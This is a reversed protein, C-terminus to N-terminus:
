DHALAEEDDDDETENFSYEPLLKIFTDTVLYEKEEVPISTDPLSLSIFLIPNNPDLNINQNETPKTINIFHILLLPKSRARVYASRSSINQNKNRIQKLRTNFEEEQEGCMILEPGFAVSNKKNVKLVTDNVRVAGSRTSCYKQPVIPHSLGYEESKLSSKYPIGLDWTGLEENVRKNIYDAILSKNVDDVSIFESQPLKLKEIFSLILSGSINKYVLAQNKTDNEGKSSANKLSEIFDLAEKVNYNNKDVDDHFSFAELCRNSYDGALIYRTSHRMKNSATLRLGASRVKIGFDRPTKGLREMAKFDLILEEVTDCVDRFEDCMDQTLHIKLLNQYGDHYGFWRGMQLLTDKAGVNRLVYSVALGQLTLGRSLAQGGIAIIHLGKGTSKEYDIPTSSQIILKTEISQIADLLCKRVTEWDVGENVSAQYENCWVEYLKVMIPSDKWDPSSSWSSISKFLTELFNDILKKISNQVLNFRSINILMASHSGRSGTAIRIARFIVYERVANKLGDPLDEINYEKKHNLPILTEFDEPDIIKVCNQILSFNSFLERPGIYNSPPELHKIFDSPYLDELIDKNKSDPDIFINAFPTATYGVYTSQHCVQLLSRIGENIKTTEEPQRRTNITANDAEDDIILLPLDLKENHNLSKLWKTIENIVISNKKTVFLIPESFTTQGACNSKGQKTNFDYAQTTACFPHRPQYTEQQLKMDYIIPYPQNNVQDSLSNKGVFAKDIRIQTQLRLHNSLGSFIIIIRYGADASKAILASYNTTKGMQVNGMVLGKRRNWSLNDKPNGLVGMLEDTIEDIKHIVNKPLINAREWHNKLRNWYHHDIGKKLKPYWPEFQTKLLYGNEQTTTYITELHKILTRIDDENLNLFKTSERNIERVQEELYQKDYTKKEPNRTRLLSDFLKKIEPLNEVKLGQNM